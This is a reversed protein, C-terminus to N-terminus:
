SPGDKQVAAADAVAHKLAEIKQENEARVAAILADIADYTGKAAEHARPTHEPHREGLIARQLEYIWNKLTETAAATDDAM